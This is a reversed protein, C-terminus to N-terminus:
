NTKYTTFTPCARVALINIPGLTLIIIGSAIVIRWFPLGLSEQSTAEKNLNGLISNGLFIMAFGLMVFGSRHSFLPWNKSIYTKFLPLETLILFGPSTETRYGRLLFADYTGGMIIRIVHECADFFFFKSVIFTKVLMVSSAAIVSLLGIINMVRLVNLVVYGAGLLSRGFCLM